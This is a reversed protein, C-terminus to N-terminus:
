PFDSEYHQASEATGCHKTEVSADVRAFPTSWLRQSCLSNIYFHETFQSTTHVNCRLIDCNKGEWRTM